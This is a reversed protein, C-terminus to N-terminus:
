TASEPAVALASAARVAKINGRSAPCTSTRCRASQPQPGPPTGATGPQGASWATLGCWLVGGVFEADDLGIGLKRIAAAADRWRPMRAELESRAKPYRRLLYEPIGNERALRRVYAETFPSKAAVDTPLKVARLAALVAATDAQRSAEHAEETGTAARPRRSREPLWVQPALAPGTNRM